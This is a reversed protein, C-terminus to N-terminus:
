VYCAIVSCYPFMKSVASTGPPFGALFGGSFGSLAAEGNGNGDDKGNRGDKTEERKGSIAEHLLGTRPKM